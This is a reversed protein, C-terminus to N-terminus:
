KYLTIGKNSVDRVRVFGLGTPQTGELVVEVNTWGGPRLSKPFTMEKSKQDENKPLGKEDVAGWEITAKVENLTANTVNGFRLTVRSGNAYPRVDALEVTITGLDSKILSYGQSGPTLFAVRDWDRMFEDMSRQRKLTDLDSRLEQIEKKQLDIAQRLEKYKSESSSRSNCGNSALALVLM